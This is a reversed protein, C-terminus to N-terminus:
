TNPDIEKLNNFKDLINKIPRFKNHEVMNEDDINQFKEEIKNLNKEIKGIKAKLQSSTLDLGSIDTDSKLKQIDINSIKEKLIEFSNM